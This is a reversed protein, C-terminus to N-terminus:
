ESIDCSVSYDVYVDRIRLKSSDLIRKIKNLLCENNKENM